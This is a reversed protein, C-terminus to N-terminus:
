SCRTGAQFPQRSGRKTWAQLDQRAARARDSHSPVADVMQCRMLWRSIRDHSPATAVRVLGRM